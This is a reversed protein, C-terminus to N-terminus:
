FKALWVNQHTIRFPQKIRTKLDFKTPYSYCLPYNRISRTQAAPWIGRPGGPLFHLFALVALFALLALFALKFLPRFTRSRCLQMVDGPPFAKDFGRRVGM